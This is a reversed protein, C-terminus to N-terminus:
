DSISYPPEWASITENAELSGSGINTWTVGSDGYLYTHLASTSSNALNVTQEGLAVGNLYLYVTENTSTWRTTATDLFEGNGGENNLAANELYVTAGVNTVYFMPASGDLNTITSNIIEVVPEGGVSDNSMSQYLMIAGWDIDYDSSRNTSTLDSNELVIINSGEIVMAQSAAATGTVYEARIEGTSYLCPSDSGTTSLTTMNGGSGTITVYGGGRDTAVSASNNGTTSITMGSANIIGGYTAHLGRSNGSGTNTVTTDSVTVTAGAGSFIANSGASTVNVACNTMTIVANSGVAVVASNLGYFNQDDGVESPAGSKNIVANSITLSGGDVVLFVAQNGETSEWTGGDITVDSDIVYAGSLTMDATGAGANTSAFTVSASSAEKYSGTVSAQATEGATETTEATTEATESTTEAIEATTEATEASTESADPAATTESATEATSGCSVLGLILALASAIGLIRMKM